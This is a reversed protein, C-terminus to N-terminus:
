NEDSSAPKFFSKIQHIKPLLSCCSAKPLLVTHNAVLLKFRM